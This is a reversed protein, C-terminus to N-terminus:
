SLRKYLEENKRLVHDMARAFAENQETLVDSVVARVLAEPTVGLRTAENTLREADADSLEITLKKPM